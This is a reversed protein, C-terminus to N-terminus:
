KNIVLIYSQGLFNFIQKSFSVKHWFRPRMQAGSGRHLLGSGRGQAVQGPIGPPALARYISVYM